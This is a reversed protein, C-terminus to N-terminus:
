NHRILFSDGTDQANHGALRFDLVNCGLRRRQVLRETLVRILGLGFGGEPLTAPDYRNGRTFVPPVVGKDLVRGCLQGHCLWLSASVPGHGGGYAHEAVNNLVEAMVLLATERQAPALVALPGGEIRVLAARVALPDALFKEHALLM